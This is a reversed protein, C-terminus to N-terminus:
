KNMWEKKTPMFSLSCGITKGHEELKKFAEKLTLKYQRPHSLLNITDLDGEPMMIVGINLKKILKRIKIWTNYNINNINMKMNDTLPYDQFKYKTRIKTLEVLISGDTMRSVWLGM